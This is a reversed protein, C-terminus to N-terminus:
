TMSKGLLAELNLYNREELFYFFSALVIIIEGFGLGFM